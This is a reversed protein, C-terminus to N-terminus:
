FKFDIMVIKAMLMDVTKEALAVSFVGDFVFSSLVSIIEIKPSLIETSNFFGLVASIEKIILLLFSITIIETSESM